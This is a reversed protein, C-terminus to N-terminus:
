FFYFSVGRVFYKVLRKVIKQMNSVIPNIETSNLFKLTIQFMYFLNINIIFLLLISNQYCLSVMSDLAEVTTM